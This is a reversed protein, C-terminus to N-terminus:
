DNESSQYIIRSKSAEKNEAFYSSYMNEPSQKTWLRNEADENLCKQYILLYLFLNFSLRNKANKWVPDEQISVDILEDWINVVFNITQKGLVFLSLWSIM